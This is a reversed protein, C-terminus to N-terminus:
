AATQLTGKIVVRVPFEGSTSHHGAAYFLVGMKLALYSFSILALLIVSRVPQYKLASANKANLVFLQQPFWQAQCVKRIVGAHLFLGTDM